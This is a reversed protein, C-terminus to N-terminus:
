AEPKDDQPDAPPAVDARAEEADARAQANLDICRKLLYKTQAEILADNLRAQEERTAERYHNDDAMRAM